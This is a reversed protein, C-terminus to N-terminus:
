CLLTCAAPSFALSSPASRRYRTASSSILCNPAESGLRHRTLDVTPHPVYLHSPIDCGASPYANELWTGGPASNKDYIKYSIGLEALRVAVAIGSMGVGIVGVEAARNTM